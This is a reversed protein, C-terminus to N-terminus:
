KKIDAVLREEKRPWSGAKLENNQIGVNYFAIGVEDARHVGASAVVPGGASSSAMAGKTQTESVRLRSSGSRSVPCATVHPNGVMTVM